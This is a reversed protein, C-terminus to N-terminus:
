GSWLRLSAQSVRRSGGVQRESWAPGLKVGIWLILAPAIVIDGVADGLAVLCGVGPRM